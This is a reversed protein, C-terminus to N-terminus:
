EPPVGLETRVADRFGKRRDDLDRLIATCDSRDNALDDDTAFELEHERLGRLRRILKAGKEWALANENIRPDSGDLQLRASATQWGKGADLAADIAVEAEDRQDLRLTPVVQSTVLIFRHWAEMTQIYADRRRERWYLRDERGAQETWHERERRATTSAGLFAGGLTGLVAVVALVITLWVPGGGM